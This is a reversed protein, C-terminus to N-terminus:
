RKRPKRDGFTKKKDSGGLCGTELVRRGIVSGRFFVVRESIKKERREVEKDKHGRCNGEVSMLHISGGREGAWLFEKKAKEKLGKKKIKMQCRTKVKIFSFM